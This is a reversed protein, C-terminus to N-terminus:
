KFYSKAGIRKARMKVAAVTRGHKAAFLALRGRPQDRWGKLLRGNRTEDALARLEADEEPTWPRKSAATSPASTVAANVVNGLWPAGAPLRGPEANPTGLM